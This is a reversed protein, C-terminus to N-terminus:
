LELCTIRSALSELSVTFHIDTGIHEIGAHQLSPFFRTKRTWLFGSGHSFNSFKLNRIKYDLVGISWYEM